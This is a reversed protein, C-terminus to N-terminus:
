GNIFYLTTAVKPTLADYAAQTLVVISAAGGGNIVRNAVLTTLEVLQGQVTASTVGAGSTTTSIATADHADVTDNLHATLAATLADTLVSVLLKRTVGSEQVPVLTGATPSALAPLADISVRAGAM